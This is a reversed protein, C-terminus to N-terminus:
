TAVREFAHDVDASTLVGLITGDNEVLVYEEAPTRAMAKILEEGALDADLILGHQVSRAISSVPVWARREEPLALLASENVVASLRDEGTHVIIAGAGQQQAARVAEAVPLDHPVAVVRRALPRAKLAPLRRRLRANVISATAGGWLFSAIVAAM